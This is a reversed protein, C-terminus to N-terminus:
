FYSTQLSGWLNAWTIQGDVGDEMQGGKGPMRHIPGLHHRAHYRAIDAFLLLLPPSPFRLHCTRFLPIADAKM